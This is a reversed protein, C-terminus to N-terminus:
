KAKGCALAGSVVEAAGQIAIRTGRTGCQFQYNTRPGILDTCAMLMPEPELTTPPLTLSAEGHAITAHANDNSWRFIAQGSQVAIFLQVGDYSGPGHYNEVNLYAALTAGHLAKKMFGIIFDDPTSECNVASRQQFGCAGGAQFRSPGSSGEGPLPCFQRYWDGDSEPTSITMESSPLASHRVIKISRAADEKCGSILVWGLVFFTGPRNM